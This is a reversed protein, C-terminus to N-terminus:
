NWHFTLNTLDKADLCSGREGKGYEAVVRECGKVAKEGDGDDGGDGGDGDGDGDDGGGGAGDVAGSSDVAVWQVPAVATKLLKM